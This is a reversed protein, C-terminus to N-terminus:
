LLEAMHTSYLCPFQPEPLFFCTGMVCSTCHKALASAKHEWVASGPAGLPAGSSREIRGVVLTEGEESKGEVAGAQAWGVGWLVHLRSVARVAERLRLLELRYFHFLSIATHRM